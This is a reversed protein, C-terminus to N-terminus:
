AAGTAKPTSPDAGWESWSGDYVAGDRGLLHAGFALVSATIGSGCTFILARDLDVGAEAFAAALADGQKWRGDADFLRGYPLNRSGPIHGPAVEGGPDPEAGTFRAPSRADVIQTDTGMAARVQAMDVIGTGAARPTAHRPKAAAAGSALPRGEARWTALGGDLIAVDTFGFARLMVWARAATHHPADDYLVIRTGDGLGLRGMRSAFQAAGPLTSPLPSAADAFAALDMFVAGPIHAAVFEGRADRPADGPFNAHLSADAVRLDRAGLEDALWATSVLPPM